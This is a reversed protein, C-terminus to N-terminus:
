NVSCNWPNFGDSSGCLIRTLINRFSLWVAILQVCHLFSRLQVCHPHRQGVPINGKRVVLFAVEPSFWAFKEAAILDVRIASLILHISLYRPLWKRVSEFEEFSGLISFAQFTGVFKNPKRCTSLVGIGTRCTCVSCDHCYRRSSTARVHLRTDHSRASM